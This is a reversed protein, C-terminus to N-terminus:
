QCAPQLLRKRILADIGYVKKLFGVGKQAFRRREAHIQTFRHREAHVQTFRRLGDLRWVTKEMKTTKCLTRHYIIKEAISM